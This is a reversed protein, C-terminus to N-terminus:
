NDDEQVPDVCEPEIWISEMHAPKGVVGGVDIQILGYENFGIIYFVQGICRELTTRTKFRETDQVADPVRVVRVRDGQKLSKVTSRGVQWQGGGVPWQNAEEFMQRLGPGRLNERLHAVEQEFRLLAEEINQTNTLAIDRWMSYPSHAIRTMERLARGGIQSVAPDDGLEERLVAALATAMMQPLHSIWACLQDHRKADMAIVRAGISQLLDLYEQQRSTYPQASDIPTVLWAADRFLDPDAHEIGGHEKGAMPHGPLVRQAAQEGLVLCAREVLQEKTSGTDTILTEPPLLPAIAEFHSLICGVPTALVVVDSGVLARELDAEAGDIASRAQAVELVSRKDCGVIRGAFGTRKLALALSGGILGTGVITIQRIAM